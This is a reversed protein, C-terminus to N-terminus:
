AVDIQAENNDMESFPSPSFLLMSLVLHADVDKWECILINLISSHRDGPCHARGVLLGVNTLPGEPFFLGAPNFGPCDRFAWSM